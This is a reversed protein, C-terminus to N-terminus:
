QRRPPMARWALPLVGAALVIKITDGLLFPSGGLRWATGFGVHLARALWSIGFIYIVLNGLVMSLLSRVSGRDWGHDSAWGVLAAAFLMGVLYGGTASAASLVDWGSSHHAFLPAGLAGILLYVALTMTARAAGYSAGVLLVAFTQGTIPVPTNPLPISVQAALGILLVGLMVLLADAFAAVRRSSPRVLSPVIATSSM